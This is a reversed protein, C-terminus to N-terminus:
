LNNTLTPFVAIFCIENKVSRYYSIWIIICFITLMGFAEQTGIATSIRRTTHLHSQSAAVIMAVLSTGIAGAFQQLTNLIANGQSQKEKGIVTLASTMVCGMCMGMGGMYLIYVLAIFTNTLHQWYITFAILAILYLSTGILIPKRTGFKDLIHGGLPAFIAGVFGAPLVILGATMASNGNVM